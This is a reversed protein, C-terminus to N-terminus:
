LILSSVNLLRYSDFIKPAEHKYKRHKLSLGLVHGLRLGKDELFSNLWSSDAMAYQGHLMYEGESTRELSGLKWDHVWFPRKDDIEYAWASDSRCARGRPQALNMSPFFMQHYARWPQWININPFGVAAVLPYLQLDAIKELKDHIPIWCGQIAGGDFLVMPRESQPYKLWLCHDLASFVTEADPLLPGKVTYGFPLMTFHTATLEREVSPIVAGEAAMLRGGELEKDVLALCQEWERLTEIESGSGSARPWWEPPAQPEIDWSSPEVPCLKLSYEIYTNDDVLDAHKLWALVRLFASRYAEGIKSTAGLLSDGSSWTYQGVDGLREPIGCAEALRATEWGWVRVFDVGTRETLRDATDAFYPSLFSRLYRTFFRSPRYDPPCKAFLELDFYQSPDSM